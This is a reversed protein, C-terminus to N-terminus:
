GFSPVYAWVDEGRCTAWGIPSGSSFVEEPSTVNTLNSEWLRYRYGKKCLGKWIIFGSGNFEDYLVFLYPAVAYSASTFSWTTPASFTANSILLYTDVFLYPYNVIPIEVDKMEVSGNSLSLSITPLPLFTASQLLYQNPSGSSTISFATLNSINTFVGSMPMAKSSDVSVFSIVSDRVELVEPWSSYSRIDLRDALSLNSLYLSLAPGDTYVNRVYLNEGELSSVSISDNGVGRRAFVLVSGEVSINSISINVNRGTYYNPDLYIPLYSYGFSGEVTLNDVEVGSTSWLGVALRIGAPYGGLLTVNGLIHGDGIRGVFDGALSVCDYYFSTTYTPPTDTCVFGEVGGETSYDPNKLNVVGGGMVSINSLHILPSCSPFFYHVVYGARHSVNSLSVNVCGEAKVVSFSRYHLSADLLHSTINTGKISGNTSYALASFGYYLPYGGVASANDFSWNINAFTGNGAIVFAYEYQGLRTSLTLNEVVLDGNVVALGRHAEVPGGTITLSGNFYLTANEVSGPCYEVVDGDSLPVSTISSFNGCPGVVWHAGVSLAALVLLLFTFKM